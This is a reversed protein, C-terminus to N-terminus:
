RLGLAERARRWLCTELHSDQSLGQHAECFICESTDNVYVTAALEKVINKVKPLKRVKHPLNGENIDWATCTTEKIPCKKTGKRVLVGRREMEVLRRSFGQNPKGTKTCGADIENRTMPAGHHWLCDYVAYSMRNLM